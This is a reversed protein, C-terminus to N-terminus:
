MSLNITVYEKLTNLFVSNKPRNKDGFISIYVNNQTKYAKEIANKINVEVNKLSTELEEAVTNYIESFAHIGSSVTLMFDLGRLISDYGVSNVPIGLSILLKKIYNRRIKDRYVATENQFSWTGFKSNVNVGNEVLEVITEGLFNLDVPKKLYCDAGNKYAKEAVENSDIGSMVIIKTTNSFDKKVTRLVGIGDIRSVVVDTLVADPKLKKILEVGQRGDHVMACLEIKKHKKFFIELFECEDANDEV